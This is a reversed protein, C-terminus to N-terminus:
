LAESIMGLDMGICALNIREPLRAARLGIDVWLAFDWIGFEFALNCM